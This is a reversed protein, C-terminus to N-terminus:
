WGRSRGTLAARQHAAADPQAGAIVGTSGTDGVRTRVSPKVPPTGEAITLSSHDFDRLGTISGNEDGHLVAAVGQEIGLFRQVLQFAEALGGAGGDDAAGDLRRALQARTRQDARALDLPHRSCTFSAAPVMTM